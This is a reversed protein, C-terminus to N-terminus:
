PRPTRCRSRSVTSRHTVGARRGPAVGPVVPVDPCPVARSDSREAAPGRACSPVPRAMSGCGSAELAAVPDPRHSGVQRPRQGRPEEGALPAGLPQHGAAGGHEPAAGAPERRQGALDHGQVRSRREVAGALERGQHRATGRGGPGPPRTGHRPRHRRRPHEGVAPAQRHQVVQGVQGGEELEVGALEVPEGVGLVPRACGALCRQLVVPDGVPHRGAPGDPHELRGLGAQAAELPAQEVLGEPEHRGVVCGPTEAGAARHAGVGRGVGTSGHHEAEVELREEGADGDAAHVPDPAGRAVGLRDGVRQGPQRGRHQRQGGPAPDRAGGVGAQEVGM